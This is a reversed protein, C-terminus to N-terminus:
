RGRDHLEQLYRRRTQIYAGLAWIGVCCACGVALDSVVQSDSVNSTTLALAPLLVLAAERSEMARGHDYGLLHLLGHVLPRRWDTGLEM